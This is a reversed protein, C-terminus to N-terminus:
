RLIREIYEENVTEEIMKLGKDTCIGRLIIMLSYFCIQVSTYKEGNDKSM